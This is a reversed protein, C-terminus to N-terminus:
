VHRSCTHYATPRSHGYVSHGVNLLRSFLYQMFWFASANASNLVYAMTHAKAATPYRLCQNVRSSLRRDRFNECTSLLEARLVKNRLAIGIDTFYVASTMYCESVDVSTSQSVWQNTLRRLSRWRLQYLRRFYTGPHVTWHRSMEVYVLFWFFMLHIRTSHNGKCSHVPEMWM